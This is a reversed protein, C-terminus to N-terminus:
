HPYRQKSATLVETLYYMPRQVGHMKGEEAREVVLATSIVNSRAAIYLYLPEREKPVALIPSTSLTRKLDAFAERAEATWEFKETKKLLQYFPLAREGLRSIFRSLAALHGTIQQVGRLNTPEKMTLLAQIKEPNPEIGRASVLYGLLQGAPVGFACKKPNLKICYRNLATFTERM